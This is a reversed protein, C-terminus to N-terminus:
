AAVHHLDRQHRDLIAQAAAAEAKLVPYDPIKSDWEVLTPVPGCRTIVIEYLKWVADTVPGDHSDILLLDGEDDRQEAHGALHIEGVHSLPFDSLYDLASFGHNTASVFVNNIDLLLGCGTREAVRRIFETESMTSETFALYTSPNELLLPRWIADQVQDIHDCVRALTAETYPLPLLDNFYTTDHTSWALHESVLAPEYREVLDRFRKLHAKDLPREGGISMCVGHLSVPHDRRVAELARHPPGGAGMYNEAHVEFFGPRPGEHLIAALHEPKFSTGALGDMRLAPFRPPEVALSRPSIAANM